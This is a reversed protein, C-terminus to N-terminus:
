RIQFNGRTTPISVLEVGTGTTITIVPGGDITDTSDVNYDTSTMKCGDYRANRMGYSDRLHFDQVEARYNVSKVSLNRIEMSGGSVLDRGNLIFGLENGDARTRYTYTTPTTPLTITQKYASDFSGYFLTISGYTPPACNLTISVDYLYDHTQKQNPEYYFAHITASGSHKFVTSGGDNYYHLGNINDIRWHQSGTSPIIYYGTPSLASATFSSSIHLGYQSTWKNNQFAYSETFISSGTELAYSGTFAKQAFVNLGYVDNNNDIIESYRATLITPSLAESYAYHSSTILYPESHTPGSGSTAWTMFTYQSGLVRTDRGYQSIALDLEAAMSGSTSPNDDLGLRNFENAYSDGFTPSLPIDTGDIVVYDIEPSSFDPIMDINQRPAQYDYTPYSVVDNYESIRQEEGSLRIYDSEEGGITGEPVYGNNFTGPQDRFPEGDGDQVAGGPTWITDPGIDISASYHLSEYSLATTRVKAREIITPEIVLGTQTNARYPVFKKILQFLSADYYKILRIYNQTNNRGLTFKRSYEWKLKDLDPYTDLSLYSPDGIYDDISLGGFQEAIDQNIENSPSLYIGLRSSDPPQTDALSRQVSNDRWLETTGVTTTSEIRIKTGISRNGGLDPWELSHREIV